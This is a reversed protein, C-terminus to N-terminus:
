HRLAFGSAGELPVPSRGADLAAEACARLWRQSEPGPFPGITHVPGVKRDNVPARFVEIRMAAGNEKRGLPVGQVQEVEDWTLDLGLRGSRLWIGDSSLALEQRGRVLWLVRLEDDGFLRAPERSFM